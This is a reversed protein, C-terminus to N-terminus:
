DYSGGGFGRQQSSGAYNANSIPVGDVVFLPENNGLFSNAGRVTIRSSGGLTSATGQIQVGAVKGQLANVINPEKADALEEGDVKQLAYGIAKENKSIGLGTIIVEDLTNDLVM